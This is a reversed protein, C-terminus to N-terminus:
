FNEPGYYTKDPKFFVPLYDSEMLQDKGILEETTTPEPLSMEIVLFRGTSSSIM